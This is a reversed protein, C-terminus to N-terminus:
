VTSVNVGSSTYKTKKWEIGLKPLASDKAIM